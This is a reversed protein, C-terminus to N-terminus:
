LFVENIRKYVSDIYEISSNPANLEHLITRLSFKSETNINKTYKLIVDNINNVFNNRLLNEQTLAKEVFIEKSPKAIDLKVPFVNKNSDLVFFYVDRSINASNAINRLLSGCRYIEVEPTTIRLNLFPTHEHGLFIKKCGIKKFDQYSFCDSREEYFHHLLLIDNSNLSLNMLHNKAKKYNVYSTYFNVGKITLPKEPTILNILGTLECLGLSTRPLSEETENYIDHNGIISYFNVGKSKLLTLNIYLNAFFENPLIPKNFVDGLFIINSSYMAVNNIKELCTRFYDDKRSSVKNDIHVDGVIAIDYM